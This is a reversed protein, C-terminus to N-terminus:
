KEILRRRQEPSFGEHGLIRLLEANRDAGAVLHFTLPSKSNVALELPRDDPDLLIEDAFEIWKFKIRTECVRYTDLLDLSCKISEEEIRIYMYLGLSSLYM